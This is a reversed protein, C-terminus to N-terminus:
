KYEEKIWNIFITSDTFELLETDDYTGYHSSGSCRKTLTIKDATFIIKVDSEQGEEYDSFGDNITLTNDDIIEYELFPGVESGTKRYYESIEEKSKDLLTIVELIIETIKMINIKINM